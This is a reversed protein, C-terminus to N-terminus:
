PLYIPIGPQSLAECVAISVMSKDEVCDLEAERCHSTFQFSFTLTHPKFDAEFLM